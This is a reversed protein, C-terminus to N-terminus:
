PLSPQSTLAGAANEVAAGILSGLGCGVLAAVLVIAAVLALVRLPPTEFPQPAPPAAPAAPVPPPPAQLVPTVPLAAPPPAAPESAPDTIELTEVVLAAAADPSSPPVVPTRMTEEAAPGAASPQAVFKVGCSPCKVTKGLLHDQVRLKRLCSTCQILIAM